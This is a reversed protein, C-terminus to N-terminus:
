LRLLLCWFFAVTGNRVRISKVTAPVPGLRFSPSINLGTLDLHERIEIHRVGSVFADLLTEASTVVTVESAESDQLLKRASAKTLQPALGLQQTSRQANQGSSTISAAALLQCLATDQVACLALLLATSLLLRRM